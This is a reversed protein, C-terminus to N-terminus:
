QVTEEKLIIKNQNLKRIYAPMKEVIALTKVQADRLLTIKKDMEDLFTELIEVKDNFIDTNKSLIALAHYVTEFSNPDKALLKSYKENIEKTQEVQLNIHDIRSWLKENKRIADLSKLQDKLQEIIKNLASQSNETNEKLETSM